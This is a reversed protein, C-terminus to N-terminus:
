EGPATSFDVDDSTQSQAGPSPPLTLPMVLCNALGVKLAPMKRQVTAKSTARGGRAGKEVDIANMSVKGPVWFMNCDDPGRLTEAALGVTISLGVATVRDDLVGLSFSVAHEECGRIAAWRKKGQQGLGASVVVDQQGRGRDKGTLSPHSTQHAAAM